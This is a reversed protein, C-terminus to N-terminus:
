IMGGSIFRTIVPVAVSVFSVIIFLPFLGVLKDFPGPAKVMKFTFYDTVDNKTDNAEMFYTYEGPYWATFVYSYNGDLHNLMSVKTWVNCYYGKSIADSNNCEDVVTDPNDMKKFWLDVTLNEPQTINSLVIVSINHSSSLTNGLIIASPTNIQVGDTVSIKGNFWVTDNGPWVDAGTSAFYPIQGCPEFEHRINSLSIFISDTRCGAPTLNWIGNPLSSLRRAESIEPASGTLSWLGGPNIYVGTSAPHYESISGELQNWKSHNYITLNLMQVIDANDMTYVTCYQLFPLSCDPARLVIANSSTPAYGVPADGYDAKGYIEYNVTGNINGAILGAEEHRTIAMPNFVSNWWYLVAGTGIEPYSNVNAPTVTGWTNDTNVHIEGGSQIELTLTDLNANENLNWTGEYVYVHTPSIAAAKNDISSQNVNQGSSNIIYYAGGVDNHNFSVVGSNGTVKSVDFNSNKFEVVGDCTQIDAVSGSAQINNFYLPHPSSAYMARSAFGYQNGAVVNNNFRVVQSAYCFNAAYYGAPNNQITSNIIDIVEGSGYGAMMRVMYEFTTHNATISMTSEGQWYNSGPNEATVVVNGSNVKGYKTLDESGASDIAGSAFDDTETLKYWHDAGLSNGSDVGIKFESVAPNTGSGYLTAVDGTKDGTFFRVDAIGGHFAGYPGSGVTLNGSHSSADVSGCSGTVPASKDQEVGNIFLRYTDPDNVDWYAVIHHWEGNIVDTMNTPNTKNFYRFCGGNALLLFSDDIVALGGDGTGNIGWLSVYKDYSQPNDYSGDGDIFKYWGSVTMESAGNYVNTSAELRTSGNESYFQAGAFGNFQADLEAKDGGWNRFGVNVTDRFTITSGGSVILNDPNYGFIRVTLMDYGNTDLTDGGDFSFEGTEWDGTMVITGYQHSINTYNNYAPFYMIDNYTGATTGWMGGNLNSSTIPDSSSSLVEVGNLSSEGNEAGIWQLRSAYSYDLLGDVRLNHTIGIGGGCSYYDGIVANVTDGSTINLDFFHASKWSKHCKMYLNHTTGGDFTVKGEGFLLVGTWYEDGAWNNNEVTKASYAQTWADDTSSDDSSHRLELEYGNGSEDNVYTYDTGKNFLWNAVLTAGTNNVPTRNFMDARVDQITKTGDFVRFMSMDFTGQGSSAAVLPDSTAYGNVYVGNSSNGVVYYGTLDSRLSGYEDLQTGDWKAILVGDLWVQPYTDSGIIVVIHHWTGDRIDGSLEKGSHDGNSPFSSAIYTSSGDSLRVDLGLKGSGDMYLRQDDWNGNIQFLTFGNSGPQVKVWTEWTVNENEFAARDDYNYGYYERSDTDDNSFMSHGLLGTDLYMDGNVELERNYGDDLDYTSGSVITVDGMRAAVGSQNEACGSMVFFDPLASPSTSMKQNGYSCNGDGLNYALTTMYTGYTIQTNETAGDILIVTIDGVAEGCLGPKCFIYGGIREASKAYVVATTSSGNYVRSFNDTSIHDVTIQQGNFDLYGGDAEVDKFYSTGEIILVTYTWVYPLGTGPDTDATCASKTTHGGGSCKGELTLDKRYDIWKTYVENNNAHSWNVPTTATGDIVVPFLESAGYLYSNNYYPYMQWEGSNVTLTGASNTTGFTVKAYHITNGGTKTYSNEIVIPREIYLTGSTHSVNYFTIPANASAYDLPFLEMTGDVVVTGENHLFNGNLKVTLHSNLELNGRPALLTADDRVQLTGGLVFDGHVITTGYNYGPSGTYQILQMNHIEFHCNGNTESGWTGNTQAGTIRHYNNNAGISAAVNPTSRSSGVPGTGVYTIVNCTGSTKNYDFKAQFVEGVVLDISNYDVGAGCYLGTTSTRVYVSGNDPEKFQDCNIGSNNPFWGGAFHDVGNLPNGTTESFIEGNDLSNGGLAWQHEGLPLYSGGYLSAVQDNTLVNDNFRVDRIKGEFDWQFGGAHPNIGIFVNSDSDYLGLNGSTMIGNNSPDLVREVGDVYLKMIWNNSDVYTTTFVVHKWPNAGDVFSASDEAAYKLNGDSSIRASLKGASGIYFAFHDNSSDFSGLLAQNTTVGDDPKVWMSMSFGSQIESEFDTNTDVYDGDGDFSAYSMYTSDLTGSIVDVDGSTTASGQVMVSFPSDIWEAGTITGNASGKKHNVVNSGTGENIKWWSECNDLGGVDPDAQLKSALYKMEDETVVDDFLKVDAITFNNSQSNSNNTGIKFDGTSTLDSLENATASNDPVGNLYLQMATGDRTVGVHIWEGFYDGVGGNLSFSTSWAGGSDKSTQFTINDSTATKVFNWGGAPAGTTYGKGLISGWSDATNFGEEPVYMWFSVSFDGTGFDGTAATDDDTVVMRDDNLNGDFYLASDLDIDVDASALDADWVGGTGAFTVTSNSNFTGRNILGGYYTNTKSSITYDGYNTVVGHYIWDGATSTNNFTAISEITTTGYITYDHTATNPIITGRKATVNGEIIAPTGSGAGLLSISCVDCEGNNLILNYLNGSTGTVNIQTGNNGTVEVTGNNHVFTGGSWTLRGSGSGEIELYQPAKFTGSTIVLKELTHAGTSGTLDLTGGQVTIGDGTATIYIQDHCLELTGSNIYLMGTLKQEWPPGALCSTGSGSYNVHSPTGDNGFNINSDSATLTLIGGNGDYYGHEFNVAWNGSNKGDITTTILAARYISNKNLQLSNHTESHHSWSGNNFTADVDTATGYDNINTNSTFEHLWWWDPIIPSQNTYIAYVQREDLGRNYVRFDTAKGDLEYDGSTTESGLAIIGDEHIINDTITLGTCAGGGISCGIDVGDQYFNITTPTVVVTAHYWQGVVPNAVAGSEAITWSGGSKVRLAYKTNVSHGFDYYKSSGGGFFTHYGTSAPSDAPNWWLSLACGGNTTTDCEVASDLEIVSSSGDFVAVSTRELDLIGNAVTIDGNANSGPRYEITFPYAQEISGYEYLMHTTCVGGPCESNTYEGGGTMGQAALSADEVNPGGAYSSDKVSGNTLKWWAILMHMRDGEASVNVYSALRQVEDPQLAQKYLKVDAISGEFKDGGASGNTEFYAGIGLSGAGNFPTEMSACSKAEAGNIYIKGTGGTLTAAVHNWTDQSITNNLSQCSTASGSGDSTYLYIKNTSALYWLAYPRNQDGSETSHNKSVIMQWGSGSSSPNIWAGITFDTTLDLNDADPTELYDDSGDFNFVGDLDVAYNTDAIDGLLSGQAGVHTINCSGGDNFTGIITLTTVYINNNNCNFTAGDAIYIHDARFDGTLETTAVTGLVGYTGEMVINGFTLYSASGTNNRIPANNDKRTGVLLGPFQESAGVVGHKYTTNYEVQWHADDVVPNAALSTRGKGQSSVTGLTILVQASTDRIDISYCNLEKEVTISKKIEFNATCGVRYFVPDVTGTNQMKGGSKINWVIGENHEFTGSNNFDGDYTLLGHPATLTTDSSITLDAVGFVGHRFSNSDFGSMVGVAGTYKTMRFNSISFSQTNSSDYQLQNSWGGNCPNGCSVPNSITYIEVHHGSADPDQNKGYNNSLSSGVPSTQMMTSFSGGGGTGPHVVLDFEAVYVEGNYLLNNGEKAWINTTGTVGGDGFGAWGAGGTNELCTVTNEADQHETFTDCYAQHWDTGTPAGSLGNYSRYLDPDLLSATGHDSIVGNRDIAAGGMKWWHIPTPLYTGTYLGQAQETSLKTEFFKIDAIKGDFNQGTGPSEVRQGIILDGDDAYVSGGTTGSCLYVGDQYVHETNGDIVYVLHTWEGVTYPAQCTTQFSSGWYTWFKNGTSTHTYLEFDDTGRSILMGVHASDVKAWVSVTTPTNIMDGPITVYDDSGDFELSSLGSSDVSGHTITFDGDVNVDHMLKLSYPYVWNAYDASPPAAFSVENNNGSLDCVDGGGSCTNFAGENFAWSGKLFGSDALKSNPYNIYSALKQIDADTLKKNYIKADAITGVLEPPNGGHSGFYLAGTSGSSGGDSNAGNGSVNIGNVFVQMNDQGNAVADWDGTCVIHYWTDPKDIPRGTSYRYAPSSDDCLIEGGNSFWRIRLAYTYYYKVMLSTSDGGTSLLQELEEAGPTKYWISLTKDSGTWTEGATECASKTLHGGSSCTGALRIVSDDLARAITGSWTEGADTCTYYNLYDADTCTAKIELASDTEVVVNASGMDGQLVGGTGQITITNAGTISGKNIIGHFINDGSSLIFNAGSSVELYGWENDGTYATTLAIQGGRLYTYGGVTVEMSGTSPRFAHVAALTIDLTNLVELDSEHVLDNDAKDITLNYFAHGGLQKIEQDGIGDVLVTGGQHFFNSGAKIEIASPYGGWGRGDGDIATTGSTAYYYGGSEVALTGFRWTGTYCGHCEWGLKANNVVVVDGHITQNQTDINPRWSGYSLELDGIIEITQDATAVGDEHNSRWNVRHSPSSLTVEVDYLEDFRALVADTGTFQFHVKGNNHIFEASDSGQLNLSYAHWTGATAPEGDLILEGRPASFIANDGIWLNGIHVDDNSWNPAHGAPGITGNNTTEIGTDAVTDGNGGTGEDLKYHHKPTVHYTGSFLSMAQDPSLAYDYFRVDRILGDMESATAAGDGSDGRLGIQDFTGDAIVTNEVLTQAVGDLYIAGNSDGNLTVIVHHWETDTVVAGTSVANPYQKYNIAGLATYQFYHHHPLDSKGLFTDADDTSERKVWLAITMNDHSQTITSDFAVEGYDGDEEFDLSTASLANLTGNTVTVNEEFVTGPHIDVTYPYVWNGGGWNVMGDCNSGCSGRNDITSAGENLMWWGVPTNAIERGPRSSLKELDGGPDTDIMSDWIRVDSILGDFGYCDGDGLHGLFLPSTNTHSSYDTWGGSQTKDLAGNIYYYVVSSTGNEDVVVAVHNWGSGLTSNSHHYSSGTGGDGTVFELEDSSNIRLQWPMKSNDCSTAKSIFTKYTGQGPTFNIWASMTLDGTIDLTNDDPITVYENVFDLAPDTDIEFALAEADSSATDFDGDLVGGTGVIKFPNNAQTDTGPLSFPQSAADNIISSFTWNDGRQIGNGQHLIHMGGLFNVYLTDHANSPHSQIAGGNDHIFLGHFNWTVGETYLRLYSSTAGSGDGNYFTGYFNHVTSGTTYLMGRYLKTDNEVITDRMLKWGNGNGVGNFTVNYFSNTDTYVPSAHGSGLSIKIESNGGIFQVTGNHHWFEAGDIIDFATENNDTSEIKLYGSPAKFRGGNDVTISNMYKIQSTSSSLRLDGGTEVVVDGDIDFGNSGDSHLGEQLTYTGDLVFEHHNTISRTNYEVIVTNFKDGGSQLATNTTATSDTFKVTGGSHTFVGNAGSAYAVWWAYKTGSVDVDGTIITTATTAIYEGGNELRMAGFSVDSSECDLTGIVIVEKVVTFMRNSGDNTNLTGADIRFTNLGTNAQGAGIHVDLTVTTGSANITVDDGTAPVGDPNWNTPTSWNDDPGGGDWSVSGASASGFPNLKSLGGLIGSGIPNLVEEKFNNVAKKGYGEASDINFHEFGMWLSMMYPNTQWMHIIKLYQEIQREEANDLFRFSDLMTGSDDTAIGFGVLITSYVMFYVVFESWIQKDTDSWRHTSNLTLM